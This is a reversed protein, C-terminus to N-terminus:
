NLIDGKKSFGDMTAAADVPDQLAHSVVQDGFLSNIQKLTKEKTGTYFLAYCVAAVM